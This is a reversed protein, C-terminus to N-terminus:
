LIQSLQLRLYLIQPMLTYYFCTNDASSIPKQLVICHVFNTTLPTTKITINITESRLQLVNIMFLIKEMLIGRLTHEGIRINKQIIM